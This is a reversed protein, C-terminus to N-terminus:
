RQIFGSLQFRLLLLLLLPLAAAPAAATPSDSQILPRAPGVAEM